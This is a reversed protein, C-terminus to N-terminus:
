AHPDPRGCSGQVPLALKAQGAADPATAGPLCGARWLGEGQRNNGSKGAAGAGSFAGKEYGFLESEILDKPVAACNVTAFPGKFNPSNFHIASALLEKGTGTEGMIIVPTDPSQAVMKVFEM